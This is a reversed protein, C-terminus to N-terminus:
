CPPQSSRCRTASVPSLPALSSIQVVVFGFIITMLPTAFLVQRTLPSRRLSVWDKGALAWLAPPGPLEPALAGSRVRASGMHLTGGQMMRRVISGHLWLLAGAIAVGLALFLAGDGWGGILPRTMGATAWNTPLWNLFRSANAWMLLIDLSKIFGLGRLPPLNGALPGLFPKAMEPVTLVMQFIYYGALLAFFPIMVLGLLLGRLRRDGAALDFVDEMLRGALALVAFTPLAGALLLPLASPVHSALGIIEGLLLAASLLGSPSLLTVLLTGLVLSRRRIPYIFLRTVELREILEKNYSAPLMLWIVITVANVILTLEIAGRLSLSALLAAMGVVLFIAFPIITVLVFLTLLLRGLQAVTSGRRARLISATLKWQLWLLTRTEGGDRTNPHGAPIGPGAPGAEATIPKSDM